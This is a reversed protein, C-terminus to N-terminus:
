VPSVVPSIRNQHNYQVPIPSTHATRAPLLRRNVTIKLNALDLAHATGRKVLRVSERSLLKERLYKRLQLFFQDPEPILTKERSV